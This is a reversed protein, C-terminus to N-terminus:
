SHGGHILIHKSTDCDITLVCEDGDAEPDDRYVTRRVLRATPDIERIYHMATDIDGSNKYEIVYYATKREM